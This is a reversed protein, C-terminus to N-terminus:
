LINVNDYLEKLLLHNGNDNIDDFNKTSDSSQSNNGENSCFAFINEELETQNNDDKESMQKKEHIQNQLSLFNKELQIYKQLINQNFDNKNNLMM